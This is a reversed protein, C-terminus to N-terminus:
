ELPGLQAALEDPTTVPQQCTYHECVYATPRGDVMSRGELLPVGEIHSDGPDCGVLVKNPLYRGYIEALLAETASDDRPGLVAIEKANSLYFDLAALWHTYASPTLAMPEQMSRLARTSLRSYEAEGSIVSLRLIVDAAMSSGSPTANDFVDRPRIVLAEHDKGTDYFVGDGEEWFLDIMARALSSAEDLWRGDFTAEHLVLLGDILFAYDELYGNLKAKGDKYARLLRGREDVVAELLFSANAAAAQRYDSRGLISAAEAFSRLMLGNWATLVKEDRDPKPRRERDALLLAKGRDVASRLDEVSIGIQEALAAEEQPVHLINRGEFNGEETVGYYRSFLEGDEAGLTSIIEQRSWVYFKGEVGESDADQSSYFGGDPATMERLVYDLTEEAIRRYIPRGTAQYAHLYLRSLLANDYLMKEFHPVLWHADTSYRHFGGGLQDYMGALAM